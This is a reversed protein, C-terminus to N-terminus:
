ETSSNEDDVAQEHEETDQEPKEIEKEDTEVEENKSSSVTFSKYVLWGIVVLVLVLVIAIPIFNNKLSDSLGSFLSDPSEMSKYFTM